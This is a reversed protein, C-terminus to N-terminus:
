LLEPLPVRSHSQCPSGGASGDVVDVVSPLTQISVTTTPPNNLFAFDVLRSATLTRVHDPNHFRHSKAPKKSTKAAIACIEPAKQDEFSQNIDSDPFLEPDSGVLIQALKKLDGRCTSIENLLQM